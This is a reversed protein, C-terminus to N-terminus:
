MMTNIKDKNKADGSPLIIAPKNLLILSPDPNNAIVKKYFGKM